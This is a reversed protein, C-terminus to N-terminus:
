FTSLSLLNKVLGWVGYDERRGFENNDYVKNTCMSM